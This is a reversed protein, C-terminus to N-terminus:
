TLYLVHSAREINTKEESVKKEAIANWSDTVVRCWEFSTQSAQVKWLVAEKLGGSCTYSISNGTFSM